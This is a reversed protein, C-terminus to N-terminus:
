NVCPGALTWTNDSGPESNTYWNAVYLNGEFSMEDGDENHTNPGGDWDPTTWNPYANVGTCGPPPPCDSGCCPATCEEGDVAKIEFWNLNWGGSQAVLAIANTGAPISIRHEITQWTQWGNTNPVNISGFPKGGGAKEIQIASGGVKSAVRYSVDYQGSTSAPLNVNYTMWDGADTWGVNLGGGSDSTDQTQIGDMASFGEAEVKSGPPCNTTCPCDSGTCPCDAGTCPCDSGTCPPGMDISIHNLNWGGSVAAVGLTQSGSPLNVTHSVDTWAQWGGTDPINVFGYTIDGGGQELRIEGGGIDSAVRYTVTVEGAQPMDVNYTLWDGSDVFGINQGGGVDQTTELEIGKAQCFGEAQVTGSVVLLDCPGEIVDDGGGGLIEKIFHASEKYTGDASFMSSNETKNNHEGGVEKDHYAWMASGVGNARLLDMWAWTENHNIPGAGDADTM